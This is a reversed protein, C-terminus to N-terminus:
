RQYVTKNLTRYQIEAFLCKFAKNLKAHKINSNNTQTVLHALNQQVFFNGFGWANGRKGKANSVSM